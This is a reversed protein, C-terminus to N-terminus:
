EGFYSHRNRLDSSPRRQPRNHEDGSRQAGNGRECGDGRSRQRGWKYERGNRVSAIDGFCSNTLLRGFFEM